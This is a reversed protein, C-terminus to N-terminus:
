SEENGVAAGNGGGSPSRAMPSNSLVVAGIALFAALISNYHVNGSMSIFLFCILLSFILLRVEDSAVRSERYLRWILSAFISYFLVFGILGSNHLLDIPTSHSTIGFRSRFSEVGNGFVPNRAWGDLGLERWNARSAFGTYGPLDDRAQLIEVGLTIRNMGGELRSVLSENSAVTYGLLGGLVVLPVINRRLLRAFSQFYFVGAM